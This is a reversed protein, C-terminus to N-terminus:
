GSAASTGLRIRRELRVFPELVNVPRVLSRIRPEGDVSEVNVYDTHDFVGNPNLRFGIASCAFYEIREPHFSTRLANRVHTAAGGQLEECVWDFFASGQAIPVYPLRAGTSEQNVWNARRASEFFAPDDFKTVLVSVHHPLRGREMGGRDRVHSTIQQLAAYFFVLSRLEEHDGLVPDFLYVLGRSRALSEVAAQNISGERYDEGPLDQLELEFGVLQPAKRPRRRRRGPDDLDVAEDLGQFSWWFSDRSDTAPPFRGQTLRQVGDTLINSAVRGVGSVVWPRSNQSGQMAAIPLAALLTTKGSRPAGWLGIRGGGHGREGPRPIPVPLPVPDRLDADHRSSADAQSRAKRQPKPAQSQTLRTVFRDILGPTDIEGRDFHGGESLVKILERFRTEIHDGTAPDTSSAYRKDGLELYLAEIAEPGRALVDDIIKAQERSFNKKMRELEEAHAPDTRAREHRPRRTAPRTTRLSHTLRRYGNDAFLDVWHLHNLRDPVDCAELRVPIVYIWGEPQKDAVDLALKIEKHVYGARTTAADSLCAVVYDAARVAKSIALEWDQGPGLDEEDLWPAFGDDVLRRYLARVAPKDASSHCLFVRTRGAAGTTM